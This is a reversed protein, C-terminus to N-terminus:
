PHDGVAGGSDLEPALPNLLRARAIAQEHAGGRTVLALDVWADWSGPDDRVARRLHRRAPALRGEALEAEGRLRWPEAAWPAFRRAREASACRPRLTAATSLTGPRQRRGTASTRRSQSRARDALGATALAARAGAGVRTPEVARRCAQDPSVGLVITCLTVAPLEWDWDLVAHVLLAVYAALAAAGAPERVARRARSLPALLAVLLLALGVAGLEALTELYLDHADRVFLLAPRERLWTREFGGAGAGLVPDNRVM